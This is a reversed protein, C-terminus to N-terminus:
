STNELESPNPPYLNCLTFNQRYKADLFTIFDKHQIRLVSQTIFSAEYLNLVRDQFCLFFFFSAMESM